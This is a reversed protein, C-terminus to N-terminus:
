ISPCDGGFGGDEAEPLFFFIVKSSRWDLGDDDDGGGGGGSGDALDMVFGILFVVIWAWM